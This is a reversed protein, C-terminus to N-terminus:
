LPTQASVVASPQQSSAPGSSPNSRLSEIMLELPLREQAHACAHVYASLDRRNKLHDISM